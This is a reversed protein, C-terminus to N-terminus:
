HGPIWGPIWGGSGSLGGANLVDEVWETCNPAGGPPGGYDIGNENDNNMKEIMKNATEPCVVFEEINCNEPNDECYKKNRHDERLTGPNDVLPNCGKSPHLGWPPNQDGVQISSHGVKGDGHPGRRHFTKITVISKCCCEVGAEDKCRGEGLPTIAANLGLIDLRNLSDNLLFGYLNV